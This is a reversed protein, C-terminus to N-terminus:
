LSVREAALSGERGGRVHFGPEHRVSLFFSPLSLARASLCVDLCASHRFSNVVEATGVGDLRQESVCVCAWEGITQVIEGRAFMLTHLQNESKASTQPCAVPLGRISGLLLNRQRPLAHLVRVASPSDAAAASDLCCHVSFYAHVILSEFSACLSSVLASVHASVPQPAVRKAQATACVSVPRTSTAPSLLDPCSARRSHRAKSSDAVPLALLGRAAAQDSLRWQEVSQMQLAFRAALSNALFVLHSHLQLKHCDTLQHLLDQLGSSVAAAGAAAAQEDPAEAPDDAPIAADPQSHPFRFSSADIRTQVDLVTQQLSHQQMTLLSPAVGLWGAESQESLESRLTVLARGPAHSKDKRDKGQAEIEEALAARCCAVEADAAAVAPETRQTLHGELFSALRAASDVSSRVDLKTLDAKSFLLSSFLLLQVEDDASQADAAPAISARLVALATAARRHACRAEVQQSLAADFASMRQLLQAHSPSSVHM